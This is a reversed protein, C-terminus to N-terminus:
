VTSAAVPAASEFLVSAACLHDIQTATASSSFSRAATNDRFQRPGGIEARTDSFDILRGFMEMRGHILQGERSVILERERLEPDDLVSVSFENSSIECPVGAGDLVAFWHAATDTGFHKKSFRVSRVTTQQGCNELPSRAEDALAPIARTLAAWQPDGFVALCLWSERCRYLRYLATFGL